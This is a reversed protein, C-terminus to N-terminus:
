KRVDGPSTEGNRRAVTSTIVVNVRRREREERVAARAARFAKLMGEDDGRLDCIRGRSVLVDACEGCQSATFDIWTEAHAANRWPSNDLTFDCFLNLAAPHKKYLMENLISIFHYVDYKTHGTCTGKAPNASQWFLLLPVAAVLAVGGWFARRDLKM